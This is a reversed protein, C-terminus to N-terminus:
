SKSGLYQVVAETRSRVELKRYINKLHKRATEVSIGLCQAVEARKREEFFTELSGSAIRRGRRQM